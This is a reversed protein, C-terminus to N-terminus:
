MLLAYLEVCVVMGHKSSSGKVQLLTAKIKLMEGPGGAVVCHIM